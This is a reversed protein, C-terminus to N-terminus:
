RLPLRRSIRKLSQHLPPLQSFSTAAGACLLGAVPMRPNFPFTTAVQGFLAIRDNVAARIERKGGLYRATTSLEEHGLLLKIQELDGGAKHCFKASSRRLDHPGLHEIGAARASTVVTNWVTWVSIGSDLVRGSKLVPRFLFGSQIGTAALWDDLATRAADTVAVTRVRGHKGILDAFVWRGERKQLHKVELCAAEERRLACYTLVSLIAFSRKGILGTRDPIELLRKAEEATLWNGLRVGHAPVGPM